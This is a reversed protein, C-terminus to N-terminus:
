RWFCVIRSRTRWCTHIPAWRSHWLQPRISNVWCIAWIVRAKLIYLACRICVSVNEDSQQERHALLRAIIHNHVFFHQVSELYLVQRWIISVKSWGDLEVAVVDFSLLPNWQADFATTRDYFLFEAPLDLLNYWCNGSITSNPGSASGVWTHTCREEWHSRWQCKRLTSSPHHLRCHNTPQRSPFGQITKENCCLHCCVCCFTSHLDNKTNNNNVANMTLSLFFCASTPSEASVGVLIDAVILARNCDKTVLSICATVGLGSRWLSTQSM